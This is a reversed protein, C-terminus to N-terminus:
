QHVKNSCKYTIQNSNEKQHLGIGCAVRPWDKMQAQFKQVEILPECIIFLM